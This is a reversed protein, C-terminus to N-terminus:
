CARRKLGLFAVGLMMLLASTPEPVSYGGGTWAGVAPSMPSLDTGIYESQALNTYSQVESYGKIDGTEYNILEIFFSYSPSTGGFSSVDAVFSMPMDGAVKAKQGLEVIEDNEVDAYGLTLYKTATPTGDPGKASPDTTYAIRIGDYSIDEVGSVQWYLYSAQAASVGGLIAFALLFKKM